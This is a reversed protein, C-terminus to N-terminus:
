KLESINYYPGSIADFSDNAIHFEIIQLVGIIM